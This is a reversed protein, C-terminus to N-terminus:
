AIARRLAQPPVMRRIEAQMQPTDAAEWWSRVDSLSEQTLWQALETPPEQDTDVIQLDPSERNCITSVSESLKRRLAELLRLRIPNDLGSVQYTRERDSGRPGPRAIAVAALDLKKLLKNVIEVPTQSAKVQLRLWYSIESAWKLAAAKVAIARPDTNSYPSGDLLELIGTKAILMARAYGKPLRHLARLNGKLIAETAARDFEKAADLNEAKAQLVVGRRMAGYDRCLAEYCEQADDFDVGPFEDRWLVKQALIRTELSCELSDLAKRAWEPTHEPRVEATSIAAADERWIEEQIQKWLDVTPANKLLRVSTVRHGAQELRNVLSANLMQKQAGAVAKAQALYNLVATEITALLAAREDEATLLEDVGYVGAIEAGNSHLRRKIARPYLLSEDGSTLAFDPCFVHRPVSPRYRGLLQMHTDTALTPFYGWVESFYADEVAVRGEISIGSKASPSLILIDPQHNKLWTDPNEFFSSFLGGQNTESDIRVVKCNPTEKAIAKEVRKGEAQSTCVFLARTRAKVADLFRARFGSAQGSYGTCNWPIGQKHHTFVRVVTAGSTAEIFNVSRNALGDESAVIAGTKIAHQAAQAFRELIDAWRSKLTDGQAIHEIVQNAEDLVLLVPRSWFWEPIRHLSDPCMVIGHSHSVDAWLAQQETASTGYKHIHPLGWDAATQEGLSNLPCLVLINWGQTIAPKVWDRGIRYTKGSNMSASLVHMAGQQSAPLEPLYQGETAREVPYSLQNLEEIVKLARNIRDDRRYQALTQAAKLLGDLWQQANEGQKHLADDVGKGLGFEWTPVLIKCGRSELVAGLQLAQTRVDRQTKPRDDQDFVIHITRGPTAFHAIEDHLENSGKKHWQTIGRVAIAAVGHGILSLAKKLGEVVAFPGNFSSYWSWFESDISELDSISEFSLGACHFREKYREELRCNRAINLGDQWTVWPLVPTAKEGLKTEYKVFKIKTPSGFGKFEKEQRPNLPKAYATGGPQGNLTTGWAIWCGDAIAQGQDSKAWKRWHDRGRGFNQGESTFDKPSFAELAARGRLWFVNAKTLRDPIESARFEKLVFVPLFQEQQRLLSSPLPFATM